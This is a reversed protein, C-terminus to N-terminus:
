TERALWVDVDSLGALCRFLSKLLMLLASECRTGGNAVVADPKAWPRDSSPAM